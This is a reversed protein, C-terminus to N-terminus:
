WYPLLFDYSASILSSCLMNIDELCSPALESITGRERQMLLVPAFAFWDIEIHISFHSM